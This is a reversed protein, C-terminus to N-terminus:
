YHENQVNEMKGLVIIQYKYLVQNAPKVRFGFSQLMNFTYPLILEYINDKGFLYWIIYYAMIFM